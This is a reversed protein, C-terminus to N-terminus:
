RNIIADIEWLRYRLIAFGFSLPILISLVVWVWRILSLWPGQLRTGTTRHQDSNVRVQAPASPLNM